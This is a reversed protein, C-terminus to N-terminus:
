CDRKHMYALLYNRKFKRGQISAYGTKKILRDIIYYPEYKKRFTEQTFVKEYLNLDKMYYTDTDTGPFKKLLNKANKDGEKSLARVFFLGNPKLIRYIESLYCDRETESLSNSSTIDLVLDFYKDSFNLKHGFSGLSYTVSLGHDLARKKAISVATESCEIGYVENGLGALYNSNRGTGSGLDLVTKGRLTYKKEKRLYKFYRLVDKQPDASGTIMRMKRYETEWAEHQSM